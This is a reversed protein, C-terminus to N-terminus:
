WLERSILVGNHKTCYHVCILKSTTYYLPIRFTSAFYLSVKAFLGTTHTFELLAFRKYGQKHFIGLSVHKSLRQQRVRLTM